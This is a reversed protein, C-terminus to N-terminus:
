IVLEELEKLKRSKSKGNSILAFTGVTPSLVAILLGLLAGNPNKVPLRGTWFDKKWDSYEAPQAMNDYPNKMKNYECVMSGTAIIVGLFYSGMMYKCIRLGRDVYEKHIKDKPNEM